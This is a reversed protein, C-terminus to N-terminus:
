TLADVDSTWIATCVSYAAARYRPSCQPIDNEVIFLYVGVGEIAAFRLDTKDETVSRPSHQVFAEQQTREMLLGRTVQKFGTSFSPSRDEAFLSKLVENRTEM